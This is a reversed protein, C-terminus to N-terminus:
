RNRRRLWISFGAALLGLPIVLLFGLGIIAVQTDNLNLRLDPASKPAIAILEDNESLWNFINLALGLNAGAGVYTNALFDSDGIVVMRQEGDDLQRQLALGIDVPGAHDGSTEDFAVDLVFGDAEVWSGPLTKLLPASQWNSPLRPTLAAAISFLTNYRMDETIPHPPYSIVPVVAPHQIRLTKRLTPNNDVVVGNLFEIDLADAIDQMGPLEGPDQLWLLHGGAAIFAIIKEVEGAHLPHNPSAIVLTNIHEPIDHTLLNISQVVFGKESLQQKLTSYGTNNNNDPDREGHGSIFVLLPQQQRSLRILANSITQESLTEITEQKDQYEIVSQGYLNINDQRALEVALDPNLIRYQLDAKHRQYRQLIEKVAQQMIPDENQYSRISVPGDITRLLKITDESLSNRSSATWDGRLQYENSLWALLAICLLFLLVFIIYQIRYRLRSAKNVRM